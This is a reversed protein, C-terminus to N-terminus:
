ELCEKGCFGMLFMDVVDLVEDPTETHVVDWEIAYSKLNCVGDRSTIGCDEVLKAGPCPHPHKIRRHPVMLQSHCLQTLFFKSKLPNVRDLPGVCNHRKSWCIPGRGENIEDMVNVVDSLFEGLLTTKVDVLISVCCDDNIINHAPSIVDM